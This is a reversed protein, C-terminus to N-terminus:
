EDIYHESMIVWSPTDDLGLAQRVHAPIEIGSTDGAPPGHAILVIRRPMLSRRFLDRRRGPARLWGIAAVGLKGGRIM